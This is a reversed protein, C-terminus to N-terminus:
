KYYNLVGLTINGATALLAIAASTIATCRSTRLAQNAQEVSKRHQAEAQKSSEEHHQRLTAVLKESFNTIPDECSVREDSRAGSKVTPQLPKKALQFAQDLQDRDPQVSKLFSVFFFERNKPDSFNEGMNVVNRVKKKGRPSQVVTSHTLATLETLETKHEPSASTSPTPLTWSVELQRDEGAVLTGMYILVIVFLGMIRKNM